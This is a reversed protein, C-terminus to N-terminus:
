DEAFNFEWEEPTIGSIIFERDENSLQPLADQILKNGNEYEAYEEYSIPIDRCTLKGSILSKKWIIM